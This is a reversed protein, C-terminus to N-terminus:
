SNKVSLIRNEATVSDTHLTFFEDEPIKNDSVASM